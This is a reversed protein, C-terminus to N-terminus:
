PVERSVARLEASLTMVGWLTQGDDVLDVLGRPPGPPAAVVRAAGFPDFRLRGDFWGAVVVDNTVLLSFASDIGGAGPLETTVTLPDLSFRSLSGTLLDGVVLEGHHLLVPGPTTEAVFAESVAGGQDTMDVVVVAGTSAKEHGNASLRYRGACAVAVRHSDVVALGGPNECVPLIVRQDRVLRDDDGDALHFTELLAPGTLMPADPGTSVELLNAFAVVVDDNAADHRDFIAQPTRPTMQVVARDDDGDGDVDAPTRLTVPQSLEFLEDDSLTHLLRPEGCPVVLAVAHSGALTVVARSHADSATDGDDAHRLVAVDWPLAGAGLFISDAAVDGTPDLVDLRAEASAAVLVRSGDECRVLTAANPTTGTPIVTPPLAHTEPCAATLTGAAVVTVVVVCDLVSSRM